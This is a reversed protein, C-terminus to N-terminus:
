KIFLVLTIILFLLHHVNNLTKSASTPAEIDSELDDTVADTTPEETM